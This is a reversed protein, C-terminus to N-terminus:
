RQRWVVSTEGDARARLRASHGLRLKGVFVRDGRARLRKVPHWGGGRRLQVRVRGPAPAMGWVRM